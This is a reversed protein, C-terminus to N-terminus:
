YSGFIIPTGLVTRNSNFSVFYHLNVVKGGIVARYPIFPSFAYYSVGFATEETFVHTASFDKLINEYSVGSLKCSEGKTKSKNFTLADYKESKGFSGYEYYIEINESEKKLVPSSNAYFFSFVLFLFVAVTFPLFLKKFM